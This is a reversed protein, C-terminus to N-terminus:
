SLRPLSSLRRPALLWMDQASMGACVYLRCGTRKLGTIYFYTSLFLFTSAAPCLRPSPSPSFHGPSLSGPSPPAKNTYHLAPCELTVLAPALSPLQLPPQPDMLLQFSM